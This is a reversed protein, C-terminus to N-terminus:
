TLKRADLSLALRGLERALAEARREREPHALRRALAQAEEGPAPLPTLLEADRQGALYSVATFARQFEPSYISAM